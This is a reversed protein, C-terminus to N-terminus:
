PTGESRWTAADIFRVGAHFAAEQDEPRDGVMVCAERIPEVREYTQVWTVARHLLGPLPKRCFCGADPHHPCTFVADVQQEAQRLTERVAAAHDLATM